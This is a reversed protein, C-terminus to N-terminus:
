IVGKAELIRNLLWMVMTVIWGILAVVAVVRVTDAVKGKVKDSDTIVRMCEEVKREHHWGGNEVMCVECKKDLCMGGCEPCVFRVEPGSMTAHEEVLWGEMQRWRQSPEGKMMGILKGLM